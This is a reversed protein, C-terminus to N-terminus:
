TPPTRCYFPTNQKSSSVVRITLLADLPVNGLYFWMTSTDCSVITIINTELVLRWAWLQIFRQVELLLCCRQIKRVCIIERTTAFTYTVNVVGILVVCVSLKWLATLRLHLVAYHIPVIRQAQYVDLPLMWSYVVPRCKSCFFKKSRYTGCKECHNRYECNRRGHAGKCHQCCTTSKM